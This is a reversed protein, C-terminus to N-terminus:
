LDSLEKKLKKSKKSYEDKLNELSHIYKVLSKSKIIENNSLCSLFKKDKNKRRKNKTISSDYNKISRHSIFPLLKSRIEYNRNPFILPLPIIKKGLLNSDSLFNNKIKKNDFFKGKKIKIISNSKEITKIDNFSHINFAKAGHSNKIEENIKQRTKIEKYLYEENSEKSLIKQKEIQFFEDNGNKLKNLTKIREKKYKMILNKFEPTAKILDYIKNIKVKM